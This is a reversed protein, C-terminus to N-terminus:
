RYSSMCCLSNSTTSVFEDGDKFRCYGCLGGEEESLDVLYGTGAMKVWDGAYANCGALGTGGFLPPRRFVALEDRACEVGVEHIVLGLMGELLYTFPTLPYMWEKWFAPLDSPPIFAGCFRVIFQFFIPVLFSASIENPSMAALAIGFTVYFAELLLM